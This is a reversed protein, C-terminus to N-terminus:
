YSQTTNTGTEKRSASTTPASLFSQHPIHVNKKMVREFSKSFSHILCFMRDTAEKILGEIIRLDHALKLLNESSDFSLSAFLLRSPGFDEAICCLCAVQVADDQAHSWIHHVLPATDVRQTVLVNQRVQLKGGADSFM